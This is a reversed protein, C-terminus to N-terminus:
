AHFGTRSVRTEKATWKIGFFSEPPVLYSHEDTELELHEAHLAVRKVRAIPVPGSNGAKLLVDVTATEGTIYVGDTEDM